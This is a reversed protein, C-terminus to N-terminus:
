HQQSPSNIFQSVVSVAFTIDSHIVTLYDLNGVLREYRWPGSYPEGQSSLLKVSSVMQTDAFKANIM